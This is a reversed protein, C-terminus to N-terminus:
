HRFAIHSVIGEDAFVFEEPITMDHTKAYAYLAKRQSEPSYEIQDETSVRIYAAAIKM